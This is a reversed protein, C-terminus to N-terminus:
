APAPEPGGSSEEDLYRAMWARFTEEKVEGFTCNNFTITREGGQAGGKGNGGQAGTGVTPGLKAMAREVRPTGAEVGSAAAGAINDEGHELMVTSPSHIGFASTFAGLASSALGKVADVVAGAGATIGDVLGGVFGSAADLAGSVFGSLAGWVDAALGIVAGLVFAIGAAIYGVALGIGAVVLAIVAVIALFPLVVLGVVVALGVFIAKLGTLVTANSLIAKFASIIPQVATAVTWFTAVVRDWVGKLVKGAASGGEGTGTFASVIGHIATVARTAWGFLTSFLSTIIPKIGNTAAGGRNFEAFLSKVAAMFPAVAPGLGDFLSLLGEKAHQLIVPFTSGLAELPGAGKQSLAREIAHGMDVASVRAKAMQEPTMGLQAAVDKAQLGMDALLRNSKAGGETISKIMKSAGAGGEALQKILKEAAAGGSEGMIATAAATAKIASELEKGQIGASMLSKAWTEIKATAFPLAVGLQEVMELTRQGAPGGSSLASLTALLAARQQVVDIAAASMALLTGVVIMTAAALVKIGAAAAAGYPGLAAISQGVGDLPGAAQTFRGLEDRGQKVGGVLRGLGAVAGGMTQFGKVMSLLDGLPGQAVVAVNGLSGILDELDEVGSAM